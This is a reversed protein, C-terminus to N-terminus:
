AASDGREDRIHTGDYKDPRLGWPLHELYRILTRGDTDQTHLLVSFSFFFVSSYFHTIISTAAAAAAALLSIGNKIIWARNFPERCSRYCGALLLTLLLVLLVLLLRPL